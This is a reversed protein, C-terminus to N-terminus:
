IVTESLDINFPQGPRWITDPTSASDHWPGPRHQGLPLGGSSICPLCKRGHWEAAAPGQQPEMARSLQVSDPGAAQCNTVGHRSQWKVPCTVGGRLRLKREQSPILFLARREPNHEGTFSSIYIFSTLFPWTRLHINQPARSSLLLIVSFHTQAQLSSSIASQLHLSQEPFFSCGPAPLM